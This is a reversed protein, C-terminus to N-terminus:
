DFMSTSKSVDSFPKSEISFILSPTKAQASMRPQRYVKHDSKVTRIFPYWVGRTLCWNWCFDSKSTLIGRTRINSPLDKVPRIQLNVMAVGQGLTGSLACLVTVTTNLWQKSSGIDSRSQIFQQINYQKNLLDLIAGPSDCDELQVTLQHALLDNKTKRKYKILAADFIPRFNSASPTSIPTHSM